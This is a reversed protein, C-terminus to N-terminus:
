PALFAVDRGPNVLSQGGDIVIVQGTLAPTALIFRVAGAIQGPTCGRRLPNVNHVQAFGEDGLLGGSLTVGPAIGCVRVKPALALALTRTAAGLGLKAVAYSLYDPNPADMRNDLMNIVCGGREDMAAALRRTLFLPSRLNVAVHRDFAEATMTELTDYVFLSANNVLGALPAGSAEAARTVAEALGEVADLCALDAQFARATGGAARIEAVLAAAAQESTHHHIFVQWGDRALTLAIERGIRVAGGTVLVSGKVGDM